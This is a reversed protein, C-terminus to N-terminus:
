TPWTPWSGSQTASGLALYDEGADRAHALMDDDVDTLNQVYRVERGAYALYRHAVDFALYTFAHGLHTTDYPTIGCVYLGM